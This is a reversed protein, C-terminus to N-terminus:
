RSPSYPASEALYAAYASAMEKTLSQLRLIHLSVGLAVASLLLVLWISNATLVMTSIIVAWLIIVTFVKTRISVARFHKYCYIYRGLYKHTTLWVYVKRSSKLFCSAAILLFPTTPLLPLVIGVVGLLLATYGAILLLTRKMINWHLLAKYLFSNIWNEWICGHATITHTRCNTCYLQRDHQERSIWPSELQRRSVKEM